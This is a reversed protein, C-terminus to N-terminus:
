REESWRRGGSGASSPPEPPRQWGARECADLIVRFQRQFTGDGYSYAYHMTTQLTVVEVWGRRTAPDYTSRLELLHCQSGGEGNFPRMFIAHETTTLHYRIPEDFLSM